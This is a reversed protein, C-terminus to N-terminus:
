EPDPTPKPGQLKRARGAAIKTLRREVRAKTIKTMLKHLITQQDIANRDARL